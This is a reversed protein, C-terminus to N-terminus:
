RAPPKAATSDMHMHDHMHEHADEADEDGLDAPLSKLDKVTLPNTYDIKPLLSLSDPQFIGAVLGMGGMAIPKGTTNDYHSYVTYTHNAKIRLADENFGFIFRGTKTIHGKKDEDTKLKVLTRGTVSDVLSVWQGYDHMHGGVMILRGSVPVQFDFRQTTKGAPLDFSNEGGYVNSVDVYWPIVPVKVEKPPLYSLTMRMYAGHLDEGTDNHWAIVFGLHDGQPLPTAVGAPLVIEQTDQGWSFLREVMTHVLSRRDFNFMPMHHLIRLPVSDGNEKYLRVNVGNMWGDVPWEFRMMPSDTMHMMDHAMGPMPKADALDFPGAVIIVQRRVSDVQVTVTTKPKADQAGAISAACLLMLALMSRM